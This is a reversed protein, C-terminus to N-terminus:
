SRVDLASVTVSDRITDTLDPYIASAEDIHDIRHQQADEQTTFVGILDSCDWVGWATDAAHSAPPRQVLLRDHQTLLDEVALRLEQHYNQYFLSDMKGITTDDILSLLRRAWSVPDPQLPPPPTQTM